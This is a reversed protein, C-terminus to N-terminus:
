ESGEMAEVESLAFDWTRVKHGVLDQMIQGMVERGEDGGGLIM